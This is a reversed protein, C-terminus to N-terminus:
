ESVLADLLETFARGSEYFLDDEDEALLSSAKVALRLGFLSVLARGADTKPAGAAAGPAPARQFAASLLLLQGTAGRAAATARPLWTAILTDLDSAKVRAEQSGRNPQHHYLIASHHTTLTHTAHKHLSDCLLSLVLGWSV